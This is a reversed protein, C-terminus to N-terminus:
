EVQQELKLQVTMTTQWGETALLLHKSTLHYHNYVAGCNVLSTKHVSNM